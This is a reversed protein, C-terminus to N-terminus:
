KSGACRKFAPLHRYQSADRLATFVAIIDKNDVQKFLKDYMDYNEIEAQVGVKCAETVSNIGNVIKEAEDKMEDEPVPLGYKKFLDELMGIHMEEAKEINVFPRVEGFKKMVDVYVDRAKYEDEIAEKMAEIESQSLAEKPYANVDVPGNGMGYGGGQPGRGGNGREEYGYGNHENLGGSKTTCGASLFVTGLLVILALVATLRIIKKKKANM